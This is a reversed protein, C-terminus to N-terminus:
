TRNLGYQSAPTVGLEAAWESVTKGSGIIPRYAFTTGTNGAPVGLVKRLRKVKSLPRIKM